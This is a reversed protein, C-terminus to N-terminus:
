RPGWSISPRMEVYRAEAVALLEVRASAAWAALGNSRVHGTLRAVANPWAAAQRQCVQPQHERCAGEAHFKVQRSADSVVAAATVVIRFVRRGCIACHWRRPENATRPVHSSDAAISGTWIGRVTVCVKRSRTDVLAAPRVLSM